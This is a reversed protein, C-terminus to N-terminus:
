EEIIPYFAIMVGAEEDVEANDEMERHHRAKAGWGDRHSWAFYLLLYLLKRIM